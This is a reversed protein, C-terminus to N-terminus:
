HLDGFLGEDGIRQHAISCYRPAIETWNHSELHEGSVIGTVELRRECAELYREVDDKASEIRPWYWEGTEECVKKNGLNSFRKPSIYRTGDWYEAVVYFSEGVVETGDVDYGCSYLDSRIFFELASM